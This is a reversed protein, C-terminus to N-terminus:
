CIPCTVATTALSILWAAVGVFSGGAVCGCAVGWLWGAGYATRQMDEALHGPVTDDADSDRECLQMTM